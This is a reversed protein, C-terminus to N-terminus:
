YLSYPPVIRTGNKKYERVLQALEPRPIVGNEEFFGPSMQEFWLLVGYTNVLFAAGSEPYVNKPHFILEVPKRRAEIRKTAYGNGDRRFEVNFVHDDESSNMNVADDGDLYFRGNKRPRYGHWLVYLALLYYDSGADSQLMEHLVRPTCAIDRRSEDIAESMIHPDKCEWFGQPPVKWVCEGPEIVVDRAYLGCGAAKGLSSQRVVLNRKELTLM